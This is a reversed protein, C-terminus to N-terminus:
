FREDNLNAGVYLSHDKKASWGSTTVATPISRDGISGNGIQGYQGYGWSYVRNNTATACVHLNSSSIEAFNVGAPIDGQLVAVPTTHDGLSGIGAQGYNNRGWSYARDNTAIACSALYGVSIQKFNVGAPLAGQSVAVPTLSSTGAGNGLQGSTGEGWCYAKDDTGIACTHQTGAAIFKFNVGNPM